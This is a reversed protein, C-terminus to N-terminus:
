SGDKGWVKELPDATTFTDLWNLTAVKLVGDSVKIPKKGKGIFFKIAAESKNPHRVDFGWASENIYCGENVLEKLTKYRRPPDKLKFRDTVVRYQIICAGDGVIVSMCEEFTNGFERLDIIKHVKGGDKHLLEDERGIYEILDIM